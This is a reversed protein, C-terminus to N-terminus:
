GRGFHRNLLHDVSITGAGRAVVLFLLSAWQLHEVWNQPYVFIQIVAIVGLLSVAGFRAFLGFFLLIAGGLETATALPAAIDPPLLPVHYELAFLQETTQWSALKAQASKWFVAAVAVRSALLLVSMPIAEALHVLSRYASVPSVAAPHYTVAMKESM